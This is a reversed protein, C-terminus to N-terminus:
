NILTLLYSVLAMLVPILVLLGLWTAIAIISFRRAKLSHVQAKEPDTQRWERVKVSSILSLIGICSIGCIISAIALRRYDKIQSKPSDDGGRSQHGTSQVSQLPVVEDAKLDAASSPSSM